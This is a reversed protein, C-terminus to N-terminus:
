SGYIKSIREAYSKIDFNSIFNELQKSSNERDYTDFFVKDAWRKSSLDLDMLETNDMFVSDLTIKNSLLCKLGSVQAEILALSMGEYLSPFIFYDFSSYFKHINSVPPLIIVKDTLFYKQIRNIIKNKLPGEGILVLKANINKKSIENFIDILFLHNKQKNFRGVHGIVFNKKCNLQTRIANRNKLDFRFKDVDIANPIFHFPNNNGFMWEGSERSCAILDTSYFRILSKLLLKLPYYWNIEQNSNHSHAIRNVYNRRKAIVLPFASLTDIHSHIVNANILKLLENLRNLYNLYDFLNERYVSYVKGGLQEIEDFYHHRGRKQVIFIFVYSEHLEKYLSVLLSELGGRNMTTVFQVIVKKM